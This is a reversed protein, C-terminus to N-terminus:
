EHVVHKRPRRRTPPSGPWIRKPTEAVRGSDQTRKSAAGAVSAATTTIVSGYADADDVYIRIDVINPSLTHAWNIASVVDASLPSVMEFVVPLGAECAIKGHGQACTPYSPQLNEIFIGVDGQARAWELATPALTGQGDQVDYFEHVQLQAIGRAAEYGAKVTQELFPRSYGTVQSPDNEGAIVRLYRMGPLPSHVLYSLRSTTRPATGPKCIRKGQFDFCGQAAGGAVERRVLHRIADYIERQARMATPSWPALRTVPIGYGPHRPNPDTYIWTPEGRAVGYDVVPKPLGSFLTLSAPLGLAEAKELAARLADLCITFRGESDVATILSEMPLRIDYAKTMSWSAAVWPRGLNFSRDNGCATTVGRETDLVSITQAQAVATMALLVLIWAEKRM